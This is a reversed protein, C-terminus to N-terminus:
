PLETFIGRESLGKDTEKKRAIRAALFVQDILKEIGTLPTEGPDKKLERTRSFFPIGLIYDGLDALLRQCFHHSCRSRAHTEEHITKAFLAEDLIVACDADM